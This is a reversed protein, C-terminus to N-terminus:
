KVVVKRGNVIYLGKTPQAVRQGNLNYCGQAKVASGQVTNVGTAEENEFVVSLNRAGSLTTTTPDAECHLYAKTTPLVGGSIKYFTGDSLIYDWTNGTFETKGDGALFLNTKPATATAAVPVTYETDATGILMLPTGAPVAGVESLTVNGADAKTAVYAKLGAPSVASFDLAKTTVYTTKDKAPTFAVGEVISSLVISKINLGKSQKFQTAGATTVTYEVTKPSTETSGNITQTGDASTRTANSPTSWSRNENSTSASLYTIAVKDGVKLNPITFYFDSGNMQMYDGNNLRLRDSGFKAFTLGELKELTNGNATITAGAAIEANNAYRDTSETWTWNTGDAKLNAIDAASMAETFDWEKSVVYINATKTYEEGYIEFYGGFQNGGTTIEISPGYKATAPTFEITKVFTGKEIVGGNEPTFGEFVITADYIADGRSKGVFKISTVKINDSVKLTYDNTANLKFGDTGSFITYYQIESSNSSKLVYNGDSSTWTGDAYTGDGFGIVALATASHDVKCNEFIPSYASGGKIIVARVTCTNTLVFPASYEVKTNSSSPDSNDTTYYVTGSGEYNITVTNNAYSITPTLIDEVTITAKNSTSSGNGDTVICYYYTTGASATSIDAAALTASTAGNIIDAAKGTTDGDTNSYWQYSLNGASATAAVTLASPAEGAEYTASSPQTTITPSSSTGYFKIAHVYIDAGGGYIEVLYEKSDDLEGSSFPGTTSNYNTTSGGNPTIDMNVTRDSNATMYCRVKTIGTVYFKLTRQDENSSHNKLKTVYLKKSSWSSEDDPNENAVNRESSTNEGTFANGSFSTLWNGETATAIYIATSKTTTINSHQSIYVVNNGLGSFDKYVPTIAGWAGTACMVLLTLLTFLQKKM